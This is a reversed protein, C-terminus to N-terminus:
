ISAPAGILRLITRRDHCVGLACTTSAYQRMARWQFLHGGNVDGYPSQRRIACVTEGAIVNEAAAPSALRHHLLVLSTRFAVRASDPVPRLLLSILRMVAAASADNGVTDIM